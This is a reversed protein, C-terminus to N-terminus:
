RARRPRDAVVRELCSRLPDVAQAACGTQCRIAVRSDDQFPPAPRCPQETRNNRSDDGHHQDQILLDEILMVIRCVVNRCGLCHGATVSELLTILRAALQAADNLWNDFDSQIGDAADEMEDDLLMPWDHEAEFACAGVSQYPVPDRDIWASM